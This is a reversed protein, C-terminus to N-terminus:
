PLTCAIRRTGIRFKQTALARPTSSAGPYRVSVTNTKLDHDFRVTPENAATAEPASCHVSFGDQLCALGEALVIPPRRKIPIGKERLREAGFGSSKYTQVLQFGNDTKQLSLAELPGDAARSDRFCRIGTAKSWPTGDCNPDDALSPSQPDSDDCDDATPIGDCDGDDQIASSKPDADDCDNLTLHGDCDADFQINGLLENTDDCDQDSFVMDADRDIASGLAAVPGIRGTGECGLPLMWGLVWGIYM